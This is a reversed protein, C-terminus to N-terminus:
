RAKQLAHKALEVLWQREAPTTEHGPYWTLALMRNGVIVDVEAVPQPDKCAWSLRALSALEPLAQQQCGVAGLKFVDAADILDATWKLHVRAEGAMARCSEDGYAEVMLPAGPLLRVLLAPDLYRCRAAGEAIPTDGRRLAVDALTKAAQELEVDIEDHWTLQVSAAVHGRHGMATYQTGSTSATFGQEGLAQVAEMTGVGALMRRVKLVFEIAQSESETVKQLALIVGSDSRYKCRTIAGGSEATWPSQSPFVRDVEATALWGCETAAAQTCGLLLFLATLGLKTQTVM